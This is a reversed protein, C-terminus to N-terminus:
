KSFTRRLVIQGNLPFGALKGLYYDTHFPRLVDAQLKAGISYKPTLHYYYQFGFEMTMSSSHEVKGTYNEERQVIQNQVIQEKGHIFLQVGPVVGFSLESRRFVYGFRLPFELSYLQKVSVTRTMNQSFNTERYNLEGFGEMRVQLGLSVFAKDIKRIYGGGLIAGGVINQKEKQSLYPSQGITAGLELYWSNEEPNVRNQLPEIERSRDETLEKIELWDINLDEEMLSNKGQKTEAINEPLLRGTLAQQKGEGLKENEGPTQLEFTKPITARVRLSSNTHSDLKLAVMESLVSSSTVNASAESVMEVATNETTNKQGANALIVQNTDLHSIKPKGVPSWGLELLLLVVAAVSIWLLFARNKKEPPLLTEMESWFEPVFLPEQGEAAHANRFLQDLEEDSIHRNSYKM